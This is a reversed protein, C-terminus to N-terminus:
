LASPAKTRRRRRRRSRGRRSQTQDSQLATEVGRSIEEEPHGEVAQYFRYFQVVQQFYPKKRFRLPMRGERETGMMRVFAFWCTSVREQDKRRVGFTSSLQKLALHVDTADRLAGELSPHRRLLDEELLPFLFCLISFFPTLGPDEMGADLRSLAKWVWSPKFFADPREPCDLYRDLATLYAAMLGTEKHLRFVPNLGGASLDKQLEDQLRSANCVKLLNANRLIAEYTVREIEFGIRAAHRVARIMRVPDERFREDPEGITRIIRARLDAIGGVYDIVSFTSIDYFLGNITLDRRFADERPHGFTNDGRKVQDQGEQEEPVLEDPDRRFTSVEIIKNGRFYVHAIRFRRGIIRCNHFLRRMEGPRADTAVDFDKPIRGLLLDRVSGGVLYAKFGNRVLRYMVKVADPDILSRSICHQPRPLVVPTPFETMTM